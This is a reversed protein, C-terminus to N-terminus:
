ETVNTIASSCSASLATSQSTLCALIRGEGADVGQCLKVVDSGCQEVFYDLVVEAAELTSAAEYLAYQCQNSLKDEYAYFCAALRGEGLTVGSCYQEIESACGKMVDDVIDQANATGFAFAVIAAACINLLTTRKMKLRRKLFISAPMEPWLGLLAAGFPTSLIM